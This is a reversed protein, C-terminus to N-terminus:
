GIWYAGGREEKCVSLHNHKIHCCEWGQSHVMIPRDLYIMADGSSNALYQSEWDDKFSWNALHSRLLSNKSTHAESTKFKSLLFYKGKREVEFIHIVMFCHICTISFGVHQPHYFLLIPSVPAINGTIYVKYSMDYNLNISSNFVHRIRLSVVNYYMPSPCM